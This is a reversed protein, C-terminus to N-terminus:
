IFLINIEKQNDKISLVTFLNNLEDNIDITYINVKDSPLAIPHDIPQYLEDISDIMYKMGKRNLIYFGTGYIINQQKTWYNENNTYEEEYGGRLSNVRLIDWDIPLNTKLNGYEDFRVNTNYKRLEIIGM